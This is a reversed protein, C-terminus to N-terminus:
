GHVSETKRSTRSNTASAPLAATRQARIRELLVSAPEDNPDQPVLKGEFARKLIGQRLRESRRMDADVEAEIEDIVSIRRELEAVIRKQEAAPPVPVPLMSLKTMNLSALNTTQKGEDEFYRQGISNGYWSLFKPQILDPLLRARFVHNQHVCEPIKGEWVWGRGLKDRDGGENFLVDGDVLRLEEVEGPTADITKIESLDLYGRQVNAVRLYPVQRVNDTPKRKQGKTLGGKLEGISGLSGWEWGEPLAPLISRDLTRPDKHKGKKSNNRAAEWHCRRETLIRELLASAPEYSRGERRALEAEIPVLRGECAAKLVSARYRKLNTQLRKLATVAADLRTFQKDIEEVIRGQEALPAVPVLTQRVIGQSINPQAGGKGQEILAPRIFQLFRFLFWPRVVQSPFIGCVAQNTTAQIGLIGLKGVTAGYLAICVTDMPFLKASSSQLGEQTIHEESQFIPADKLEGSKVWPIAGGYLSPRDRRPTGGSTTNAIEHIRAWLWSRPLLWPDTAIDLDTM